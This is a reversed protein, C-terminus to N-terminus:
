DDNAEADTTADTHMTNANPVVADAHAKLWLQRAYETPEGGAAAVAALLMLAMTRVVQHLHRHGDLLADDLAKSDGATIAELVDAVVLATALARDDASEGVTVLGPNSSDVTTSLQRAPTTDTM